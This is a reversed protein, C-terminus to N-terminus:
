ARPQVIVFGRISRAHVRTMHGGSNADYVVWVDDRVQRELGMVHHARVAVTGPAPRARPFRLWARAAWLSKVPAGFLHVALGCGCFARAPCGRPHPLLVDARAPAAAAIVLLALALTRM